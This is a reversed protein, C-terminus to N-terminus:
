HQYLQAFPIITSVDVEEEGEETLVPQALLAMKQPSMQKAQRFYHKLGWQENKNLHKNQFHCL